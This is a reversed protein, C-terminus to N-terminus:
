NEKKEKESKLAERLQKIEEQWSGEILTFLKAVRSDLSKTNEQIAALAASFSPLDKTRLNEQKAKIIPVDEIVVRMAICTECGEKTGTKKKEFIRDILKSCIKIIVAAVALFLIVSIIEHYSLLMPIDTTLPM